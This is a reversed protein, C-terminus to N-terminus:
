SRRVGRFPRLVGTVAALVKHMVHPLAGKVTAGSATKHGGGGFMAAVKNVDVKGQSRFNVRIEHERALSEKFLIVVEVGKLSRAFNLISESLDISVVNQRKLYEKHIQFWVVKGDKSKEMTPLIESLLKLDEYPINGYVNKYTGAVDVGSEVLEAAIRHTSALTNSFRFSGTDTLLGVYLYQAMIRDIPVRFRKCLMYVMESTCSIDPIVWNVTGFYDNSIHHDINIVPAGGILQQVQGIRRIDSCDLVVFCDFKGGSVGAGMKRVSTVGPLFRYSYPVEDDNVIVAKKGLARLMRRVALEGGLGDGDLNTHSTICFRRYKKLAAVVGSLGDNANKAM